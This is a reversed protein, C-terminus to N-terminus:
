KAVLRLQNADLIVRKDDRILKRQDIVVDAAYLIPGNWGSVVNTL